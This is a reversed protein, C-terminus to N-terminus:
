GQAPPAMDQLFAPRRLLWVRPGGPVDVRDHELFGLRAYLRVNASSSTETRAPVGEADPLALGPALVKTGLGRGQAAPLVGVSELSWHPGEPRRPALLAEAAAAHEARAGQLRRIEPGIVALEDALGKPPAPPLWCAAALVRGADDVVWARGYRVTLGAYIAMLARLRSPHEDADVTWRTWPYDAFAAALVDALHGVDRHGAPRVIM